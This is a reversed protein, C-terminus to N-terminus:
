VSSATLTHTGFQEGRVAPREVALSAAPILHQLPDLQLGCKWM